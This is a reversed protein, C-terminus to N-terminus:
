VFELYETNIERENGVGGLFDNVQDGSPDYNSQGIGFNSYFEESM